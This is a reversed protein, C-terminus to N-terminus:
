SFIEITYVKTTVVLNARPASEIKELAIWTTHTKDILFNFITEHITNMVEELGEQTDDKVYLLM